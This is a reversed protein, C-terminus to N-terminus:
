REDMMTGHCSPFEQSPVLLISASVVPMFWPKGPFVLINPPFKVYKGMFAATM